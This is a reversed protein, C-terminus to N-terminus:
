GASLGTEFALAIILEAVALISLWYALNNLRPTAFDLMGLISPVHLNGLASILGPMIFLFVMGLGHATVSRYFGNQLGDRFIYLGQVGLEIRILVSFVSYLASLNM